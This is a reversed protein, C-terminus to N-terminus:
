ECPQAKLSTYIQCKAEDKVKYFNQNPYSKADRIQKNLEVYFRDKALETETFASRTAPLLYRPISDEGADRSM